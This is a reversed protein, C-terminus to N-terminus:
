GTRQIIHLGSDSEVIDSIEGVHLNFAANSFSPQMSEKNFFGLDGGRSHSSCDSETTAIEAFTSEGKLIKAQLKKIIQIAEDRTLKIEESKWSKPKRSTENKVLIHSARVKSDDGIVAKNGNAKFKRLYENLKDNDSGFPPEWSSENTSQNYYYEKNHGRSLRITWGPPLGTSIASM